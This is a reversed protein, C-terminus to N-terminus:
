GNKFIKSWFSKKGVKRTARRVKRASPAREIHRPPVQMSKEFAEMTIQTPEASQWGSKDLKSISDKGCYPCFKAFGEVVKGCQPNACIPM